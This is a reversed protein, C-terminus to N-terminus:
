EEITCDSIAGVDIDQPDTWAGDTSWRTRVGTLQGVSRMHCIATFRKLQDRPKDPPESKYRASIAPEAFLGPILFMHRGRTLVPQLRKGEPIEVRHTPDAFGCRFGDIIAPSACDLDARDATVLTIDASSTLHYITVTEPPVPAFSFPLPGWSAVYFGAGVQNNLTTLSEPGQVSLEDVANFQVASPAQINANNVPNALLDGDRAQLQGNVVAEAKPGLASLYYQFGWHGGFWVKADKARVLDYTRRASERVAKALLADGRAVGLAIVAGALLSVTVGWRRVPRGAVSAQQDLRRALLIGVAPAMPLLSRGNVTWNVFVTFAFTGFIWLLLLVSVPDRRRRADEVAMALVGIGGVAWLWLQGELFRGSAGGPPVMPQDKFVL